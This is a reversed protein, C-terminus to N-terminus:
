ANIDISKVNIILSKLSIIAEEDSILVALFYNGYGNLPVDEFTYRFTGRYEYGEWDIAISKDLSEVTNLVSDQSFDEKNKLKIDTLKFCKFEITDNKEIKILSLELNFDIPLNYDITVIASFNISNESTIIKNLPIFDIKGEKALPFVHLSVDVDKIYKEIEEKTRM